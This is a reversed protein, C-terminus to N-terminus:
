AVRSLSSSAPEGAPHLRPPHRLREDNGNRSSTHKRRLTVAASARPCLVSLESRDASRKWAVTSSGVFLVRRGAVNLQMTIEGKHATRM